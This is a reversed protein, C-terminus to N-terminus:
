LDTSLQFDEKMSYARKVPLGDSLVMHLHAGRCRAHDSTGIVDHLSHLLMKADLNKEKRQIKRFDEPGFEPQGSSVRCSTGSSHLQTDQHM